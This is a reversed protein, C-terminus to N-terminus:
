RPVTGLVEPRLGLVLYHAVADVERSTLGAIGFTPMGGPHGTFIRRRMANVSDGAPWDPRVLSPPAVGRERGYDTEGNGLYGHCARCRWAYVENGAFMMAAEDDWRISDFQTPDFASDAAAVRATRDPPDFQKKEGCGLAALVLAATALALTREM